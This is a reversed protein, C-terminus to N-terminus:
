LSDYVYFTFNSAWDNYYKPNDEPPVRWGDDEGVRYIRRFRPAAAAAPLCCVALALLVALVLLGRPTMM